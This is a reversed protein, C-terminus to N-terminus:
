QGSQRGLSLIKKLFHMLTSYTKSHKILIHNLHYIPNTMKNLFIAVRLNLAIDKRGTRNAYDIVEQAFHYTGGHYYIKRINKGKLPSPFSAYQPLKQLLSLTTMTRMCKECQCCNIITDKKEDVKARFCVRLKSYTESWTSLMATKEVRSLHAGDDIIETTETNLLHVVLPNTGDPQFYTFKYACSIYFDSFFRGLILVFATLATGHIFSFLEGFLKEILTKEM